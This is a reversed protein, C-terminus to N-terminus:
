KSRKRLLYKIPILIPFTIGIFIYYIAYCIGKGFHKVLLKVIRVLLKITGVTLGIIVGRVWRGIFLVAIFM